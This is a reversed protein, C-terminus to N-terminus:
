LFSELQNQTISSNEQIIIARTKTKNIFAGKHKIAFHECDTKLDYDILIDPHFTYENSDYNGFPTESETYSGKVMASLLPFRDCSGIDMENQNNHNNYIPNEKLDVVECKVNKMVFLDKLQVGGIVQLLANEVCEKIRTNKLLVVLRVVKGNSHFVIANHKNGIVIDNSNSTIVCNCNLVIKYSDYPLVGNEIGDIFAGNTCEYHNEYQETWVDTTKIEKM